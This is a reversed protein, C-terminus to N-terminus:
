PEILANKPSHHLAPRAGAMPACCRGVSSECDGGEWLASSQGKKKGFRAKDPLRLVSLEHALGVLPFGRDKIRCHFQWGRLARRV